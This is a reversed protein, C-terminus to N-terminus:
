GFRPSGIMRRGVIADISMVLGAAGFNWLLIMISADFRHLLALATATLAAVALSAALIPGRPGIRAMHRLMWFMVLSLPLSSMLLTGFCDLADGGPINSADATVWHAVCGYSVSSVWLVAAPLPLALWLRSRDPLSALFAALTALVGTLAAAAVGLCFLPQRIREAFDPRPGHLLTLVGIVAVAFLLWSAARTVPPRLRKVPEATAVMSDILDPTATM